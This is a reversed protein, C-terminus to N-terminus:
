KRVSDPLLRRLRDLGARRPSPSLAFMPLSLTAADEAQLRHLIWLDAQIRPPSAPARSPPLKFFGRADGARARTAACWDGAGKDGGDEGGHCYHVCIRWTTEWKAVQEKGGMEGARGDGEGGSRERTQKEKSGGGPVGKGVVKTPTMSMM